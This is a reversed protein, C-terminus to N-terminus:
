RNPDSIVFKIEASSALEGDVSCECSAIGFSGRLRTLKVNLDLRDGPVVPRKYKVKDIAGLVPILGSNPEFKQVLFVLIGGIQAMAEVQLVGPMMAQQPFHGTFYQADASLNKYGTIWPPKAETDYDTVRDVMLFPYRHPLIELIEKHKLIKSM